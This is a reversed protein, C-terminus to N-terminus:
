IRDRLTLSFKFFDQIQGLNWQNKTSGNRMREGLKRSIWVYMQARQINKQKSIVTEVDSRTHVTFCTHTHSVPDCLSLCLRAAVLFNLICQFHVCACPLSTVTRNRGQKQPGLCLISVGNLANFSERDTEWQTRTGNQKKTHADSCASPREGTTTGDLRQKCRIFSFLWCFREFHAESPSLHPELHRTTERDEGTDAHPPSLPCSLVDSGLLFM